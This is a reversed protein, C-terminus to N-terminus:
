SMAEQGILQVSVNAATTTSTITTETRNFPSWGPNRLGM